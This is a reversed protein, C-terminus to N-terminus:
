TPMSNVPGMGYGIKDNSGKKRGFQRGRGELIGQNRSGTTIVKKLRLMKVM